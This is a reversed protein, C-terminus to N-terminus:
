SAYFAGEATTVITYNNNSLSPTYISKNIKDLWEIYDPPLKSKIFNILDEKEKELAFEDKDKATNHKQKAM